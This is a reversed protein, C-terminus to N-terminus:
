VEWSWTITFFSFSVFLDSLSGEYITRVYDVYDPIIDKYIIGGPHADLVVLVGILYDTISFVMNFILKQLSLIM